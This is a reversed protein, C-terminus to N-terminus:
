IAVVKLLVATAKIRYDAVLVRYLKKQDMLNTWALLEYLNHRFQSIYLIEPRTFVVQSYQSHSVQDMVRIIDKSNLQWDMNQLSFFIYTIHKNKLLYYFQKNSKIAPWNILWSDPDAIYLKRNLYYSQSGPTIVLVTAHKPIIHNAKDFSQYFWTYKMYNKLNLDFHYKFFFFYYVIAILVGLAISTQYVIMYIVKLSKRHEIKDYLSIAALLGIPYFLIGYHLHMAPQIVYWVLFFFLCGWGLKLTNKPAFISGALVLFWFTFPILPDRLFNHLDGVFTSLNHQGTVGKNFLMAILHTYDDYYPFLNLALPWIPNGLNIFNRIYFPSAIFTMCFLAGLVHYITSRLNNASRLNCYALMTFWPVFAGVQYRMGLAFGLSALALYISSSQKRKWFFQLLLLGTTIYFIAQINDYAESGNQFLTPTLFLLLLLLLPHKIHITKAIVLLNCATLFFYTAVVLKIAIGKAILDKGVFFVPLFLDNFYLPFNANVYPRFIYGHNKLIDNSIALHYRMADGARAPTDALLIIWIILLLIVVIIFKKHQYPQILYNYLELFGAQLAKFVANIQYLGYIVCLAIVITLVSAYILALQTLIFISFGLIMSGILFASVLQTWGSNIICKRAIQMGVCAIIFFYIPVYLFLM